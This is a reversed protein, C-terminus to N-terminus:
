SESRGERGEGGRGEGGGLGWGLWRLCMRLGLARKGKEQDSLNRLFYQRLIIFSFYDLNEQKVNVSFRDLQGIMRVALSLTPWSNVGQRKEAMLASSLQLWVSISFTIDARTKPVSTEGTNLSYDITSFNM